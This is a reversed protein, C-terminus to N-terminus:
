RAPSAIGRGCCTTPWEIRSFDPFLEFFIPSVRSGVLSFVCCVECVCSQTQPSVVLSFVFIPKQKSILGWQNSGESSVEFPDRFKVCSLSIFHLFGIFQSSNKRLLGLFNNRKSEFPLMLGQQWQRRFFSLKVVHGYFIANYTTITVHQANEEKSTLHPQFVDHATLTENISGEHKWYFIFVVIKNMM